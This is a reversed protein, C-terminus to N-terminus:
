IHMLHNVFRLKKIFYGHMSFICYIYYINIYKELINQNMHLIKYKSLIDFIKYQVM